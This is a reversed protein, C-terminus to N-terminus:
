IYIDKELICNRQSIEANYIAEVLISELERFNGPFNYNELKKIAKLSIKDIKSNKGKSYQLVFSILFRLDTKREKLSPLEIRYQFRNYLDNRFNNSQM